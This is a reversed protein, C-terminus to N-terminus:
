EKEQKDTVGDFDSDNPKDEKDFPDTGEDIETEDSYGDFDSDVWKFIQGGASVFYINGTSDVAIDKFYEFGTFSGSVTGNAEIIAFGITYYNSDRLTVISKGDPLFHWKYPGASFKIRSSNIIIGNSLKFLYVKLDYGYQSYNVGFVYTHNDFKNVVVGYYKDILGDDNLLFKEGSINVWCLKGNEIFVQSGDSPNSIYVQDKILWYNSLIDWNDKNISENFIKIQGDYFM